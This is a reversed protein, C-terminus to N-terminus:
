PLAIILFKDHKEMHNDNYVIILTYKGTVTKWLQEADAHM